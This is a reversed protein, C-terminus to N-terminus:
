EEPSFPWFRIIIKLVVSGTLLGVTLGIVDAAIDYYDFARGEVVQQLVETLYSFAIGALWGVLWKFNAKFDFRIALSWLYFLSFHVLKDIGSLGVDPVASGPLLVVILILATASITAWHKM